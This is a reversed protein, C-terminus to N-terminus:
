AGLLGTLGITLLVAGAAGALSSLVLQGARRVGREASAIWRDARVGAVRRVVVIALLPAAFLANYVVLLAIEGPADLRAALITSIAGFYIFATPLEVAMIAAGLAFASRRSYSRRAGSPDRRRDRSRWLVFAFGLAVVGIAAELGHEAPGGAHRLAAILSPGPGFVLVVGGALYVAFVGLAYSILGRGQPASALWLAPV